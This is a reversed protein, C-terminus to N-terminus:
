QSLCFLGTIKNFLGWTDNVHPKQKKHRGRFGLLISFNAKKLLIKLKQEIDQEFIKMYRRAVKLPINGEILYLRVCGVKM